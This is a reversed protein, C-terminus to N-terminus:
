LNVVNKNNGLLNKGFNEIEKPIIKIYPMDQKRALKKSVAYWM